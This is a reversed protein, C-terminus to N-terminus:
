PFLCSIRVTITAVEKLAALMHICLNTCLLFVKFLGCTTFLFLSILVYVFSLPSFILGLFLFDLVLHWFISCLDPVQYNVARAPDLLRFPPMSSPLRLLMAAQLSSTGMLSTTIIPFYFFSPFSLPGVPVVCYWLILWNVRRRWRWQWGDIFICTVMSASSLVRSIPVRDVFAEFYSFFFILAIRYWAVYFLFLLCKM